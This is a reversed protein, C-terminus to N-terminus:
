TLGKKVGEIFAPLFHTQIVQEVQSNPLDKWGLIERSNLGLEFAYQSVTRMEQARAELARKLNQEARKAEEDIIYTKM